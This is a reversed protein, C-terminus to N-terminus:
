SKWFDLLVIKGRLDALTVAKGGTNLWSRGPGPAPLIVDSVYSPPTM